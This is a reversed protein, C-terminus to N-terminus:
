QSQTQWRPSLPMTARFGTVRLLDQDSITKVNYGAAIVADYGEELERYTITLLNVGAGVLRQIFQAMFPHSRKKDAPALVAFLVIGIIPILAIAVLIGTIILPKRNERLVNKLSTLRDVENKIRDQVIKEEAAKPKGAEAAKKLASALAPVENNVISEFQRVDDASAGAAKMKATVNQLAINVDQVVAPAAAGAIPKKDAKALFADVGEAVNRRASPQILSLQAQYTELATNLAIELNQFTALDSSGEKVHSKILDDIKKNAIAIDVVANNMINHFRVKWANQQYPTLGTPMLKTELQPFNRVIQQAKYSAGRMAKEQKFLNLIGDYIKLSQNLAMEADSLKEKVGKQGGVQLLDDITKLTATINKIPDDMAQDFRASWANIQNPTLGPPIVQQRTTAITDVIEQAYDLLYQKPVQVPVRKINAGSLKKGPVKEEIEKEFSVAPVGTALVAPPRGYPQDLASAYTAAATKEEPKKEPAQFKELYGVKIRLNEQNLQAVEAYSKSVDSRLSSAEKQADSKIKELEQPTKFQGKVLNFVAPNSQLNSLESLEIDAKYFTKYYSSISREFGAIGRYLEIMAVINEQVRKVVSDQALDELEKLNKEAEAIWMALNRDAQAAKEDIKQTRAAVAQTIKQISAQALENVDPMVTHAADPAKEATEIKKGALEAADVAKQAAQVGRISLLFLATYLASYKM